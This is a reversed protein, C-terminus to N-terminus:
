MNGSIFKGRGAQAPFEGKQYIIEGRSITTVVRGKVRMGEYPSYGAQYHLEEHRITREPNPDYLVVDATALARVAKLTIMEPDGPGAGILTVVAEPMSFCM